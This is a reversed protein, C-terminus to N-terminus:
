SLRLISLSSCPYIHTCTKKPGRWIIADDPNSLLFGISMVKIPFTPKDDHTVNGELLVPKWGMTGQVVRGEM